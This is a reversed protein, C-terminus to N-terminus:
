QPLLTVPSTVGWKTPQVLTSRIKGGSKKSPCHSKFMKNGSLNLCICSTKNVHPPSTEINDCFSEGGRYVLREEVIKLM